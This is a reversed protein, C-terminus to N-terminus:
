DCYPKLLVNFINDFFLNLAKDSQETKARVHAGEWGDVIVAALEEAKTTRPLEGSDIAERITTAIEKQWDDFSQRLRDRIESNHRAVELSFNGLLISRITGGRHGHTAITYKFHGRLKELPSQSSDGLLHEMATLISGSNQLRSLQVFTGTGARSEM